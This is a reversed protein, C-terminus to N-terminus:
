VSEDNFTPLTLLYSLEDVSIGLLSLNRRISPIQQRIFETRRLAVAAAKGGEAVFFGRGRVTSIIAQEKLRDYASMVTNPNVGIEAALQRVSPIREGDLWEGALIQEMGYDAIQEYIGNSTTQIRM